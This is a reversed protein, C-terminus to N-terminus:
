RLRAGHRVVAAPRALVAPDDRPDEAYTVLDAPQGDRQDPFGLFKRAATTAAALAETPTLGLETLLAVEGPITGVIDTGTLVTVGRRVAGPLLTRLRERV